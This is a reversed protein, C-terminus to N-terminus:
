SKEEIRFIIKVPLMKNGAYDKVGKIIVTYEKGYFFATSQPYIEASLDEHVVCSLFAKLNYSPYDKTIFTFAACTTNPCSVLNTACGKVTVLKNFGFMTKSDLEANYGYLLTYTKYMFDGIVNCAVIRCNIPGNSEFVSTVMCFMRKGYAIDEFTCSLRTGDVEFYSNAIDIDFLHDILDVSLKEGFYTFENYPLSFNDIELSHVRIDMKFPAKLVEEAVIIDTFLKQMSGKNIFIDNKFSMMNYAASMSDMCMGLISKEEACFVDDECFALRGEAVEVDALTTMVLGGGASYIDCNYFYLFAKALTCDVQLDNFYLLPSIYLKYVTSIDETYNFFSNTIISDVKLDNLNYIISGLKYNLVMTNHHYKTYGVSFDAKFDVDLFLSGDAIYSDIYLFQYYDYAYYTFLERETIIHNYGEQVQGYVTSIEISLKDQEKHGVGFITPIFIDLDQPSAFDSSIRIDSVSQAM